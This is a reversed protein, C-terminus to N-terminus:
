GGLMRLLRVAGERRHYRLAELLQLLDSLALVPELRPFTALSLSANAWERVQLTLTDVVQMDPM